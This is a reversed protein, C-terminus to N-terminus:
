QKWTYHKLYGPFTYDYLYLGDNRASWTCNRDPGCAAIFKQGAWFVDYSGGHNVPSFNFGCWFLTSAFFNMKFGFHFNGNIPLVHNGLDDDKSACHLRLTDRNLNNFIYVNYHQGWVVHNTCLVALAFLFFAAYNKGFISM